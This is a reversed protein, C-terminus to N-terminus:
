QKGHTVAVLVQQGFFQDLNERTVSITVHSLEVPCHSSTALRREVQERLGGLSLDPRWGFQFPQYGCQRLYQDLSARTFFRIHTEDFLGTPQYVFNGSAVSGIYNLNQLNPVSILMVGTPSLNKRAARLLSWPNYIHELVDSLVILDYSDPCAAFFDEASSHHFVMGSYDNATSKCLDVGVSREPSINLASAFFRLNHGNACGVELVSRAAFGNPILGFLDHREKVTYKGATTFPSGYASFEGPNFQDNM